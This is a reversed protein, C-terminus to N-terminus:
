GAGFCVFGAHLRGPDAAALASAPPRAAILGQHFATMIAMAADDAVRSVSAIVTAAGAHLLATAMGLSEDGPRVDALGLDCASLVVVAPTRSIQRLDYGMLSGGALELESFLANDRRHRGHAAIHALGAGDLGELTSSPTAAAGTLVQGHPRLAAIARVESEGRDNGPGSVLLAREPSEGVHHRRATHWATASPAVTVSRRDCAPLVSWPVSILSGTPVVILERDGVIPLLPTLIAEALASADRRAAAEVAEALRRPMVRGSLADLDARLRQVAEAATGYDGLPVRVATAGLVVLASLESADRLYIVMAADGLQARIEAFGTPESTEGPGTASWSRERVTRELADCRARLMTTPRGALERQRMESRALRLQELAEAAAPDDPPKVPPLLLAQARAREAWRYIEDPRGSALAGRLGAVALDRGHVAAGSQLDLCGLRSRYDHLESLGAALQRDAEARRGTLGANEARALRRLLRTDLRDSRRAPGARVLEHRAAAPEHAAVFARAAILDCVRADEGLGLTRLQHGLRRARAAILRVLPTDPGAAALDARLALLSALAAWRDNGRRRFGARAGAAWRRASVPDGALLAAEARALEAEAHDQRLHQRRFDDLAAALERDAEGFLGAALLARARDVALVPLADPILEAYTERLEGFVRLAASLDGALLDVYALNHRAKAAIRALGHTSAVEACRALDARALRPSTAMHLVGRNLLARALEEPRAPEGLATIAVDFEAVAEGHRGVRMLMLGRQGHLVGREDAPLQSAAEALLRLGVPVRGSEAEAHALSVLIRGRLPAESDSSTLARLARRLLRAGDAPRMNATATVGQAHLDAATAGPRRAM